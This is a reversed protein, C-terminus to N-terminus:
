LIIERIILRVVATYKFHSFTHTMEVCKKESGRITIQLPIDFLNVRKLWPIKLKDSFAVKITALADEGSPENSYRIKNVHIFKRTKNETIKLFGEAICKDMGAITVKFNEVNLREKIRVHGYKGEIKADFSELFTKFEEVKEESLYTEKQEEKPQGYNTRRNEEDFLNM